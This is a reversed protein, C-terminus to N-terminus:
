TMRMLRSAAAVGWLEISALYQSRESFNTERARQQRLDAPSCIVPPQIRPRVHPEELFQRYQERRNRAGAARKEARRKKQAHAFHLVDNIYEPSFDAPRQLPM